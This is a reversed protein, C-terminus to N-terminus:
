LEPERPLSFLGADEWGRMMRDVLGTLRAALAERLAVELARARVRRLEHDGWGLEVMATLADALEVGEVALAAIGRARTDLFQPGAELALALPDALAHLLRWTGDSVGNTRLGLEAGLVHAIQLRRVRGFLKLAPRLVPRVEEYDELWPDILSM